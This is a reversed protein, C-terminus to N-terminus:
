RTKVESGWPGLVILFHHITYLLRSVWSYYHFHTSKGTVQVGCSRLSEQEMGEHERLCCANRWSFNSHVIFLRIINSLKWRQSCLGNGGQYAQSSCLSVKCKLYKGWQFFICSLCATSYFQCCQLTKLIWVSKAFWKCQTFQLFFQLPIFTWM